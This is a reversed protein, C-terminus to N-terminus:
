LPMVKRARGPQMQTCAPCEHPAPSFEWASLVPGWQPFDDNVWSIDAVRLSSLCPSPSHLKLWEGLTHVGCSQDWSDPFCNINSRYHVTSITRHCKKIKELKRMQLMSIIVDGGVVDVFLAELYIVPHGTFHSNWISLLYKKKLIVVVFIVHSKCSFFYINNIHFAFKM